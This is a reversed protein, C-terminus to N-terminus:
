ETFSCDQMYSAALLIRRAEPSLREVERRLADKRVDDGSLGKWQSIATEANVGTLKILRLVSERFPGGPQRGFRNWFAAKLGPPWDGRLYFRQM